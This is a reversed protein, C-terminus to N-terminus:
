IASALPLDFIKVVSLELDEGAANLYKWDCGFGSTFLFASM